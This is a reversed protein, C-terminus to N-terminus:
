EAEISSRVEALSGETSAHSIESGSESTNSERADVKAKKAAPADTPLLNADGTEELPQPQSPGQTQHWDSILGDLEAFLSLGEIQPQFIPPNEMLLTLDIIGDIEGQEGTPAVNVCAFTKDNNEPNM